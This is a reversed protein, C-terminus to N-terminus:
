KCMCCHRRFRFDNRRRTRRNIRNKYTGKLIAATVMPITNYVLSAFLPFTSRGIFTKCNVVLKNYISQYLDNIELYHLSVYEKYSLTSDALLPNYKNEKKDQDYDDLADVLCLWSAILYIFEKENDRLERIENMMLICMEAFAKQQEELSANNKEIKALEHMKTEGLAFMQPCNKRGKKIAGRLALRAAKIKFGVKKGNDLVDDIIHSYAMAVNFAGIKKWMENDVGNKKCSKGINCKACRAPVKDEELIILPVIVLDFSLTLSSPIGYHSRLAACTKCYYNSFIKREASLYNNNYIRLYGYM